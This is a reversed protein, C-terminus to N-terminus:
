RGLAYDLKAQTTRRVIAPHGDISVLQTRYELERPYDVIIHVEFDRYLLCPKQARLDLQEYRRYVPLMRSHSFAWAEMLGTILLVMATTAFVIYLAYAGCIVLPYGAQWRIIAALVLGVFFPASTYRANRSFLRRGHWKRIGAVVLSAAAGLYLLLAAPWVVYPHSFMDFM